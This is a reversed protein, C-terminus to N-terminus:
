RSQAAAIVLDVQFNWGAAPGRLELCNEIGELVKLGGTIGAEDVSEVLNGLFDLLASEDNDKRVKKAVGLFQAVGKLVEAESLVVDRNEVEKIGLLDFKVELARVTKDVKLIAGGHDCFRIENSVFIVGGQALKKLLDLALTVVHMGIVMEKLRTGVILLNNGIEDGSTKIGFALIM